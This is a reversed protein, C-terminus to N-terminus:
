DQVSDNKWISICSLIPLPSQLEIIWSNLHANTRQKEGYVWIEKVGKIERADKGMSNKSLLDGWDMTGKIRSHYKQVWYPFDNRWWIPKCSAEM